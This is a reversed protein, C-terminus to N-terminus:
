VITITQLPSGDLWDLYQQFHRSKRGSWDKTSQDMGDKDFHFVGLRSFTSDSQQRLVIGEVELSSINLLFVPISSANGQAFEAELADPYMGVPLTGDPGEVDRKRLVYYYRSSTNVLNGHRIWEAPQLRGKLKLSGSEVTGFSTDYVSFNANAARLRIQCDVIEVYNDKENTKFLSVPVNRAAWSWSPGQYEQPRPQLNKSDLNIRKWLLESGMTSKWLGAKYEDRFIL